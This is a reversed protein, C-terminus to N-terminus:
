WGISINVMHRRDEYEGSEPGVEEAYSTYALKLVTLKLDFGYSPYGQYMGAQLSMSGLWGDVLHANVGLRTRKLIDGDQEYGQFMDIYDAAVVFKDFFVEDARNITYAVGANVTMPVNLVDKDGISGINMISLGVDLNEYAQAQVGLDAVISTGDETEDTIHELLDDKNDVIETISLSGNYAQYQIAKLGVGVNINTLGMGTYDLKRSVGLAVGGYGLYNAELLSGVANPLMNLYVGSIPMISFAYKDFNKSVNLVSVNTSLHLNELTYKNLLKLVEQTEEDGEADIDSLDEGFDMINQNVAITTDIINVQWGDAKKIKSLGAPNAFLSAATGGTAVSAGGMGMTKQDKYIQPYEFSVGYALSTCLASSLLIKSIKNKM